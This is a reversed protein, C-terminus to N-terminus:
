GEHWHSVTQLHCLYLFTLTPLYKCWMVNHCNSLSVWIKIAFLSQEWVALLCKTEKKGLVDGVLLRQFNGVGFLRDVQDRKKGLLNILDHAICTISKNGCDGGDNGIGDLRWLSHVSSSSSEMSAGTALKISLLLLPSIRGFLMKRIFSM